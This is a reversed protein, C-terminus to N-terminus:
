RTAKGSRLDFPHSNRRTRALAWLVLQLLLSGVKSNGYLGLRQGGFKLWGLGPASSALDM